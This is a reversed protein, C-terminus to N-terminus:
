VMSRSQRQRKWGLVGEGHKGPLEVGVIRDHELRLNRILWLEYVLVLIGCILSLTSTVIITSKESEGFVGAQAGYISSLTSIVGAISNLCGPSCRPNFVHPIEFPTASVHLHPEFDMYLQPVMEVMALDNRSCRYGHVVM